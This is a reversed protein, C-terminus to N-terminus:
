SVITNIHLTSDHKGFTGTPFINFAISYRNRDSNNKTVRHSLNSPFLVVSGKVVPLYWKESNLINNNKVPQYFNSPVQKSFEISSDLTDPYYVGSIWSNPHTHRTGCTGMPTKTAWSSVIEYNIPEYHLINNFYFNVFDKIHYELSSLKDLINLSDSIESGIVELNDNNETKNYKLTRLRDLIHEHNVEIKGTAVPASFLPLVDIEM